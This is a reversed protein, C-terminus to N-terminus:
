GHKEIKIIDDIKLMQLDTSNSKWNLATIKFYGMM